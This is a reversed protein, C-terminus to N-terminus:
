QATNTKRSGIGKRQGRRRDGSCSQVSRKITSVSAGTAQRIRYYAAKRTIMRGAEKAENWIQVFMRALKMREQTREQSYSPIAMMLAGRMESM